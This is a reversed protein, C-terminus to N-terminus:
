KKNNNQVNKIYETLIKNILHSLKWEKGKAIKDLAKKTEIQVRASVPVTNKEYKKRNQSNM